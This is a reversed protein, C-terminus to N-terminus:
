GRPDPEWNLPSAPVAPETVAAPILDILQRMMQQYNKDLKAFVAAEPRERSYPAVRESQQFMETLGHEALDAALDDLQIRMRAAQAILGDVVKMQRAPIADYVERLRLEELRTRVAVSRPDEALQRLLARAERVDQRRYLSLDPKSM